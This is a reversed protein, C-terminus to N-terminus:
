EEDREDGFTPAEPAPASAARRRDYAAAVISRVMEEAEGRPLARCELVRAIEEDNMQDAEVQGAGSSTYTLATITRAAIERESEVM